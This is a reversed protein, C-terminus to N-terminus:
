LKVELTYAHIASSIWQAVESLVPPRSERLIRRGEPSSIVADIRELLEESRCRSLAAADRIGAAVLLQADRGSLANV